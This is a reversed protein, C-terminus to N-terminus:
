SNVQRLLTDLAYYCEQSSGIQLIETSGENHLEYIAYLYHTDETQLMPDRPPDLEGVGIKYAHALNVLEGDSNKVFM